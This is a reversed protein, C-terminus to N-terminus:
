RPSLEAVHRWGLVIDPLLVVVLLVGLILAPIILYYLRGWDLVLHMFYLGVLLAKCIAVALIISFGMTATISEHRVFYNVVFSVVTFVGLAAAVTLYAQLGPGHHSGSSHSEAM